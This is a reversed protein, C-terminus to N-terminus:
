GKKIKNNMDDVSRDKTQCQSSGRVAGLLMAAPAKVASSHGWWSLATTLKYYTVVKVLTEFPNSMFASYPHGAHQTLVLRLNSWFIVDM